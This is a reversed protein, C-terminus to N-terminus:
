LGLLTAIVDFVFRMILAGILCLLATKM